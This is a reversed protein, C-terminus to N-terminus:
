EILQIGKWTEVAWSEDEEYDFYLAAQILQHDIISFAYIVYYTRNEDSEKIMYGLRSVQHDSFEFTKLMKGLSGDRNAIMQRHESYIEPKSRDDNWVALRLSKDGTTYLLDGNQEKQREFLNNISLEWKETLRHKVMYDDEVRFDTVKYWSSKESKREFASGFGGTLLIDAISPDIALLTSPNYIGANEPNNTYENSELGSFIRWGSDEPRSRKDRYMFMPKKNGETIMKSVMLRGIPPFSDIDVNKKKKGFLGM